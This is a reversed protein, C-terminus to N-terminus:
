IVEYSYIKEQNLKISSQHHTRFNKSFSPIEEWARILDVKFPIKQQHQLRIEGLAFRASDKWLFSHTQRCISESIIKRFKEGNQYKESFSMTASDPFHYTAKSGDLFEIEARLNVNTKGPNPAFMMWDQYLSFFSLYSDVPRYVAKFFSYDLPM